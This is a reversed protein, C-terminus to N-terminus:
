AATADADDIPPAPGSKPCLRILPGPVFKNDEEAPEGGSEEVIIFCQLATDVALHFLEMFLKGVLYGIIIFLFVPIAPNSDPHMAKLMLYGVLATMMVIFCYGLWEVVWGVVAVTGFRLANRLILSFAVKASTCFNTGLLAVQIYANKNLFKICKELCWMMCQLVKLLIVMVKNKQAKAQQEFYMMVYRIFQVVALIFSGFALSGSHYRFVNWIAARVKPVSSKQKHATFFWVGVAGAIICQGCAIIFANNWLFVFFSIAFRVDFIFRPPACRWCKPDTGVTLDCNMGDRYVSSQPWTPNCKGPVDATGYAEAYTAYATKSTYSDPVQSVLFTASMAWLLVWILGILCEVIPLLLISPTEQIFMAAVKNIAIALQIRSM